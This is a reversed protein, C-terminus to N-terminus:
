MGPMAQPMAMGQQASAGGMNARASDTRSQKETKKPQSPKKKAEEGEVSEPDDEPTPPMSAMQLGMIAQQQMMEMQYHLRILARVGSRLIPDGDKIEDDLLLSQFWKISMMHNPEEPVVEPQVAAAMEDGLMDMPNQMPPIAGQEQAMQQEEPTLSDLAMQTQAQQMMAMEQYQPLLAAMQPAMQKISDVRQRCILATPEFQDGAIEVGFAEAIDDVFEPMAQQAMALGEVGGFTMLLKSISEQKNAKTNPIWSDVVAEWKVQGNSFDAASLWVGDQRGRKGKLPTFRPDLYHKKALEFLLCASRKDADGKLAFEPANHQNGAADNIQAGTATSNSVGPLGANVLAGSATQMNADLLSIYPFLHGPIQGPPMQFVLDKINTGEPRNHLGVPVSQQPQGLKRVSDPEISDKDYIWGPIAATRIQTFILGFLVNWQRQMEVADQIGLGLGTFLRIHYPATIWHWKHNEDCVQLPTDLGDCTAVYMGNPFLDIAKTGAPITEGAITQVDAPFVYEQYVCPLFWWQSFDTYGKRDKDYNGGRTSANNVATSKRMADEYELGWDRQGADANPIKLKPWKQKLEDIRVRRKWRVWTSQELSVPFEHRLQSYPVSIAKLQGLNRKETQGTERQIPIELAPTVQVNPSGCSPCLLGQPQGSIEQNELLASPSGSTVKEDAGIEGAGDSVGAMASGIGADGPVQGMGMSGAVPDDGGFEPASAFEGAVGSYGCDLCEASDEGSSYVADEYIPQETTGGDPDSEDYYFYRAYTGHVHAAKAELQRFTENYTLDQQADWWIQAARAAGIAQDSDDGAVALLKTRSSVWKEMLVREYFGLKNQERIAGTTSDPMPIVDWGYGRHRRRLIQKGEIFKDVLEWLLALEQWELSYEDVFTSCKTKLWLPFPPQPKGDQDLYKLVPELPALNPSESTTPQALGYASM